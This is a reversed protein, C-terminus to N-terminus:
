GEAASKILIRLDHSVWEIRLRAISLFKLFNM